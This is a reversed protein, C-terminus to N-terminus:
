KVKGQPKKFSLGLKDMLKKNINRLKNREEENEFVYSALHIKAKVAMQEACKLEEKYYNIDNNRMIQLHNKEKTLIEISDKLYKIEAKQTSLNKQLDSLIQLQNITLNGDGSLTSSKISCRESFAKNSNKQLDSIQKEYLEKMNKYDEKANANSKELIDIETKQKSIQIKLDEITKNLMDVKTSLSQVKNTLETIKENEKEEKLDKEQLENNIGDNEENNENDMDNMCELTGLYEVGDDKNEDDDEDGNFVEHLTKSKGYNKNLTPANKTSLKLMTNKEEFHKREMENIKDELRKIELTHREKLNKLYEQNEQLIAKQKECSKLLNSNDGKVQNFQRQLKEYKDNIENFGKEKDRLKEKTEILQKDEIEKKENKMEKIKTYSEDLKKQTEKFKKEIEEAEKNLQEIQKRYNMDSKEKNEEVIRIKNQYEEITHYFSQKTDNDSNIEHQIQLKEMELKSIEMKYNLNENELSSIRAKLENEISHSNQVLSNKEHQFTEQALELQCKYDHIQNELDKIKENLNDAEETNVSDNDDDNIDNLGKGEQNGAESEALKLLLESLEQSYERDKQDLKERLDIIEIEKDALRQLAKEQFELKEKKMTDIENLLETLMQSTEEDLNDLGVSVTTTTAGESSNNSINLGLKENEHKIETLQHNLDQIQRKYKMENQELLYQANELEIIRSKLIKTADQDSSNKLSKVLDELSEIKKETNGEKMEYESKIQSMDHNLQRIEKKLKENDFTLEQNKDNARKLELLANELQKSIDDAM